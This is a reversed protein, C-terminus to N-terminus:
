AWFYMIVPRVLEYYFTATFYLLVFCCGAAMPLPYETWLCWFAWLLVLLWSEAVEPPPQMTQHFAAIADPGTAEPPLNAAVGDHGFFAERQQQFAM